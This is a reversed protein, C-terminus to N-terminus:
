TMRTTHYSKYDLETPMLPIYQTIVKIIVVITIKILMLIIKKNNKNKNNDRTIIIIYRAFLSNMQMVYTYTTGRFLGTKSSM